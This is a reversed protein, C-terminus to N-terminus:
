QLWLVTYSHSRVLLRSQPLANSFVVLIIPVFLPSPPMPVHSELSYKHFFFFLWFPSINYYNRDLHSNLSSFNCVIRMFYHYKLVANASIHNTHNKSIRFSFQWKIKSMFNYIIYDSLYQLHIM